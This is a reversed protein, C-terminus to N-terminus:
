IVMAGGKGGMATKKWERPRGTFVEQGVAMGGARRNIMPGPALRREVRVDVTGRNGFHIPGSYWPYIGHAIASPQVVVIVIVARSPSLVDRTDDAESCTRPFIQM